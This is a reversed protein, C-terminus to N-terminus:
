ASTNSKPSSDTTITPTKNSSKHYAGYFKIVAWGALFPVWLPSTIALALCVGLLFVGALVLAVMVSAMSVAAGELILPFSIVIATLLSIIITYKVVKDLTHTKM